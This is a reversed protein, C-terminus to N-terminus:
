ADAWGELARMPRRHVLLQRLRLAIACPKSASGIVMCRCTRVREHAPPPWPPQLYIGIRDCSAFNSHAERRALKARLSSRGPLRRTAEGRAVATHIRREPRGVRLSGTKKQAAEHRRDAALIAPVAKAARSPM